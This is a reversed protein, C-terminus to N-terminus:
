KYQGMENLEAAVTVQSVSDSILNRVARFNPTVGVWIEAFIGRLSRFNAM